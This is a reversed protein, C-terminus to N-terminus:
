NRAAFCSLFTFGDRNKIKFDKLFLFEDRAFDRQVTVFFIPFLFSEICM